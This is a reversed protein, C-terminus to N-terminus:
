LGQLNLICMIMKLCHYESTIKLFFVYVLFFVIGKQLFIVVNKLRHMEIM